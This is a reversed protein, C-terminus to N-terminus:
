GMFRSAEANTQPPTFYPGVRYRLPPDQVGSQSAPRVRPLPASTPMTAPRLDLPGAPREQQIPIIHPETIQRFEPTQQIAAAIAFFIEFFEKLGQM